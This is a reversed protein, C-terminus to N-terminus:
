NSAEAPVETEVDNQEIVPEVIGHAKLYAHHASRRNERIGIERQVYCLSIEVRKPDYGDRAAADRTRRLSDQLNRLDEDATYCLDESNIVVDNMYYNHKQKKSM